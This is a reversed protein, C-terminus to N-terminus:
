GIISTSAYNITIRSQHADANRQSERSSTCSTVIYWQHSDRHLGNCAHSDSKHLIHFEQSKGFHLSCSPTDASLKHMYIDCQHHQLTYHCEQTDESSSGHGHQHTTQEHAPM